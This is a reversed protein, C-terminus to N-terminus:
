SKKVSAPVVRFLFPGYGPRYTKPVKEVNVANMYYPYTEEPLPWGSKYIAGVYHGDVCGECVIDELDFALLPPIFDALGESSSGNSGGLGGGGEPVVSPSLSRLTRAPFGYLTKM